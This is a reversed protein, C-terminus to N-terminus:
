PIAPYRGRIDSLLDLAEYGPMQLDLVVVDAPREALAAMAARHSGAKALVSFGRKVLLREVADLLVPQGGALLLTEAPAMLRGLLERPDESGREVGREYGKRAATSAYRIGFDRM